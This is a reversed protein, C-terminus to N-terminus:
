VIGGFYCCGVVIDRALKSASALHILLGMGMVSFDDRMNEASVLRGGLDEWFIDPDVVAALV